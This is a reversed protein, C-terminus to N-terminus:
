HVVKVEGSAPLITSTLDLNAKINDAKDLVNLLEDDFNTVVKCEKDFIM